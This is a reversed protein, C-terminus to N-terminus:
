SLRVSDGLPLSRIKLGTAASLASLVAPATPPVGPEGVGTPAEQSPVIHVEVLPMANMRLVPYDNFNGQTVSGNELTIAQRLFSLGFGVGGAMQATIIDPNVPVGCDVACVVRDVSFSGDARVTVEAVQAVYTGFAQQLAIGRARREGPAGAALPARWGAKDAVLDLVGRDRPRKDLMARRFLYPDKGTARAAEDILTEGVVATHTHGVSRLWQVPVDITEAIHHEVRVNPIDYPMDSVGEVLSADVAGPPKKFFGQGVVTSHWSVLNGGADLALRVKHVTLPRYQAARMDDERMWVMKIPVIIGQEAAARAIRVAERVYDARPNARRGFSGGAYLQTIQVQEPKLGLDKAVGRQDLTQFQEGNWIECRDDHLHVLCNMPEMPAHALYPQEYVAELFTGGPPAADLVKGRETAVVGPTDVFARFQQRIEASGLSLAHTEDWTITLADRGQRAVWTNKALVAVGGQVEADGPVTVVAIVGPIARAKTADVHAVKAWLRPPHAIVAVLMGPLKIDQTYIATGNVKGAIDVRPTGSRGILRFDAIAKVPVDAPVPEQAAAAIFAGYGARRGSPAHTIVGDAVGLEGVPVNWQAAAASLLMARATAAAQRMQTFAGAMASSGGTGQIASGRKALVPNMYRAVDAPAAVVEVKDLGIDLEDAALTALGTFTGQGMELYSSVVTVNGAADVRIFANPAFPAAAGGAVAAHTVRGDANGTALTFAALGGLFQRRSPAPALDRLSRLTTM